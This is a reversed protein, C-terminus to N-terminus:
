RNAPTEWSNFRYGSQIMRRMREENLAVDSWNLAFFVHRLLTVALGDPDALLDERRVLHEIEFTDDLKSAPREEIGSFGQYLWPKGRVGELQLLLSLEGLDTVRQMMLGAHRLFLLAHGMVSHLHIGSVRDGQKEEVETVYHLMGWQNMEFASFGAAPNLCIVSEHQTVTDSHSSPYLDGRWRVRIKNRLELLNQYSWITRTPYRPVVFFLLRAGVQGSSRALKAYDAAVYAQFRARARGLLAERRQEVIRRRELMNLLEPQTAFRAEFRKSYENTRVYVGKRGNLFHPAESSEQISVVYVVQDTSEAVPIAGSVEPNLPPHVGETCWQIVTQKLNSQEVVGPISEIRGDESGAKVGILLYGGFTNAFSSLKKLLEDKAPMTSKFELRSNEVAQQNLLEHVDSWQLRDLPTQYISV